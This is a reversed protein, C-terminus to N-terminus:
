CKPRMAEVLPRDVCPECCTTCLWGAAVGALREENTTRRPLCQLFREKTIFGEGGEAMQMGAFSFRWFHIMGNLGKLGEDIETQTCDHGEDKAMEIFGASFMDRIEHLEEDTLPAKNLM